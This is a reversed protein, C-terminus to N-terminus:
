VLLCVSSYGLHEVDNEKAIDAIMKARRIEGETGDEFPTGMPFISDVGNVAQDLSGRDELDGKILKAGRNRLDQATPSETNRTLAYVNHKKLIIQSTCRRGCCYAQM